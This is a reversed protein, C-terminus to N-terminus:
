TRRIFEPRVVPVDEEEEEREEFGSEELLQRIEEQRAEWLLNWSGAYLRGVMEYGWYLGGQYWILSWRRGPHGPASLVDRNNVKVKWGEDFPYGQRTFIRIPNPQDIELGYVAGPKAPLPRGVERRGVVGASFRGPVPASRGGVMPRAGSVRSSVIGM